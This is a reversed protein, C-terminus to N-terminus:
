YVHIALTALIFCLSSLQLSLLLVISASTGKGRICRRAVGLQLSSLVGSHPSSAALRQGGPWVIRGGM